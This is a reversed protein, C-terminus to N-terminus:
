RKMKRPVQNEQKNVVANLAEQVLEGEAKIDEVNLSV